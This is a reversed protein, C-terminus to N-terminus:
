APLWITFIAGADTNSNLTLKGGHAVILDRAIGLGVGLGQPFRRNWRGRYHPTFVREQEELPIGPGTDSIQIYVENGEIGATVAVTGGAPTYKVANSLLNEVAQAMRGPDIQLTPLDAPINSEWSLEKKLALTEWPLLLHSLWTSLAVPELVLKSQGSERDYLRALDNLLRQLLTLEDAMGALMEDRLSVDEAAGGLLADIASRLAGLPRGLEHVLNALLSRRQLEQEDLREVLTNFTEVLPRMEQVGSMPVPALEKSAAMTQLKAMLTDVPRILSRALVLALVIGLLLGIALIGAVVGRLRLFDQYVNVLRHTLRVIGLLSGDSAVAPMLVDAVEADLSNSHLTQTSPKGQLATAVAPLGLDQGIRGADQLDSSALLRGRNDLLMLRSDLHQGIEDSFQQAVASDQWVQPRHSALDVVLSANGLLQATNRALLVRTEMTYILAIGMLPVIILLPLIHSLILRSRLTPLM